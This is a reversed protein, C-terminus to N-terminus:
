RARETPSAASLTGAVNGAGWLIGSREALRWRLAAPADSTPDAPEASIYITAPDGSVAASARFQGDATVPTEHGQVQVTWQAVPFIAELTLRGSTSPATATTIATSTASGHEVFTVGALALGAFMAVAILRLGVGGPFGLDVVKM